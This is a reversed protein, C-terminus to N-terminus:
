IMSDANRAAWAVYAGTSKLGNDRRAADTVVFREYDGGLREAYRVIAPLNIRDAKRSLLSAVAYVAAPDSPVPASDPEAVITALSPLNRWAKAFAQFEAAAGEGVIAAALRYLAGEPANAIRSVREWSRPSPFAMADPGPMVHLLNPRFGMFAVVLPHVGAGEAWARWADPDADLTFHAFRNALALPMRGASSRDAMRNGAAVIHWGAPKVYDGLRGDLVLGYLAAQMSPAANVIGDIFFIGEPGDRTADPLDEPQLWVTRRAAMDPAPLGRLDVPERLNARWDILPLSRGAAIARMLDSKGVGPAGWLMVPIGADICSEIDSRVTSFTAM